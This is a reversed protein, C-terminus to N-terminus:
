KTSIKDIAIRLDMAEPDALAAKEKTACCPLSVPVDSRPGAHISVICAPSARLFPNYRLYPSDPSYSRAELLDLM